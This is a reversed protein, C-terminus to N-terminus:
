LQPRLEPDDLLTKKLTDEFKYFFVIGLKEMNERVLIISSKRSEM